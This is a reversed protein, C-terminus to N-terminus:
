SAGFYLPLGVLLDGKADSNTLALLRFLRANHSLEHDRGESEPLISLMKLKPLNAIIENLVVLQRDGVAGLNNGGLSLEELSKLKELAALFAHVEGRGGAGINNQNLYLVRLQKLNELAGNIPLLRTSGGIGLNNKDLLLVRLKKRSGIASFIGLQIERAADGINNGGLALGELRDLKSLADKFGALSRSGGKGLNNADLFLWQLQDFKGLMQYFNNRLQPAMDGLKNDSLILTELHVLKGLVGFPLSTLKLGNLDLISDGVIYAKIIKYAATKREESSGGGKVWTMVDRRIEAYQDLCSAGIDRGFDKMQRLLTWGDLGIEAGEAYGGSSRVKALVNEEFKKSFDDGLHTMKSLAALMLAFRAMGGNSGSLWTALANGALVSSTLACSKTSERLGGLSNLKVKGLVGRGPGSLFNLAATAGLLGVCALNALEGSSLWGGSRNSITVAVAAVAGIACVGSVSEKMDRPTNVYSKNFEHIPNILGLCSETDLAARVLNQYSFNLNSGVSSVMFFVGLIIVSNIVDSLDNM